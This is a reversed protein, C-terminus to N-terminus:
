TNSILSLVANRDVDGHAMLSSGIQMLLKSKILNAIEEVVDVDTIKSNAASLNEEHVDIFDIVRELRANLAGFAARFGAIKELAEDLKTDYNIDDPEVLDKIDDQNVGEGLEILYQASRVGLNETSLNINKVDKLKIVNLDDGGFRAM